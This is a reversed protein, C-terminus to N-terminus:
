KIFRNRYSSYLGLAIYTLAAYLFFNGVFFFIINGLALEPLLDSSVSPFLYFYLKSTWELPFAILNEAYKIWGHVSSNRGYWTFIVSFIKGIVYILFVYLIPILIGGYISLKLRNM